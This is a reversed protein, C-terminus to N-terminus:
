GLLGLHRDLVAQDRVLDASAARYVIRGREMVLADATLALAVEARQEVLVIAM